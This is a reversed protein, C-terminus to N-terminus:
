DIKNSKLLSYSFVCTNGEIDNVTALSEYIGNRKIERLINIKVTYEKCPYIPALFIFKYGLFLTGHGPFETGYYKSLISSITLGHVIKSNFGLRKAFENDFHVPNYDGSVKGYESISEESLKFNFSKTPLLSYSLLSNIHITAFSEKINFGERVWVKQVAYNQVQTSVKMINCGKTKLINQTFRIINSFEFAM